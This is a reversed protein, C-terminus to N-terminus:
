IIKNKKLKEELKMARMEDDYKKCLIIMSYISITYYELPIGVSTLMFAFGSGSIYDEVRLSEEIAFIYYENDWKRRFYLWFALVILGPLVGIFLGPIMGSLWNETNSGSPHKDKIWEKKEAVKVKKNNLILEKKKISIANNQGIIKEKYNSNDLEQIIMNTKRAIYHDRLYKFLFGILTGGFGSFIWELENKFAAM